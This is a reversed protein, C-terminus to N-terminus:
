VQAPKKLILAACSGGFAYSNSSLATIDHERCTNPVYDLDCDPDPDDYNITPAIVGEKMMLSCAAAEIASAAGMAHGIMSKISSIPIERARDGFVKKVAITEVKDNSQTGTGHANIYQIDDPSLNSSALANEMARVAGKGNPHPGTIHYADSSLGYGAVEAYIEANRKIASDLSELVLVAAGESVMMGKRNKDFPQCVEPAVAFVRNFGIFAVRSLADTGGALMVDVSGSRILDYAYGIAFNGASCANPMMMVPGEIAFERAVNVPIVHKPLKSLLASNIQGYGDKAWVNDMQEMVNAEGYTTGLCVGTRDPDLKGLLRADDLAMRSSALAFQSARGAADARGRELYDLPNFDKVQGGRHTPYSSTDFATIESIGNRGSILGQWFDRKGVGICSVVGIGTIAVRRDQMIIGMIM